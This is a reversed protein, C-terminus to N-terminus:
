AEDPNDKKVIPKVQQTFEEQTLGQCAKLIALLEADKGHLTLEDAM